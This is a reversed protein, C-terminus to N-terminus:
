CTPLKGPDLVASLTLEPNMAGTSQLKFHCPHLLKNTLFINQGWQYKFSLGKPSFVSVSVLEAMGGGKEETYRYL